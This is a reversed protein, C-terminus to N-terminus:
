IYKGKQKLLSSLILTKYLQKQIKTCQNPCIDYIYKDKCNIRNIKECNIVCNNNEIKCYSMNKCEIEDKVDECMHVM